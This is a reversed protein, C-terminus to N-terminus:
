LYKKKRIRPKSPLRKSINISEEFPTNMSMTLMDEKIQKIDKLYFRYHLEIKDYINQIEITNLMISTFNIHENLLGENELIIRFNELLWPIMLKINFQIQKKTNMHADVKHFECGPLEFHLNMYFSYNSYKRTHCIYHFLEKDSNNQIIGIRFTEKMFNLFDNLQENNYHNKIILIIYIICIYMLQLSLGINCANDGDYRSLIDSRNDGFIILVDWFGLYFIQSNLIIKDIATINHIWTRTIFKLVVCNLNSLKMKRLSLIYSDQLKLFDNIIENFPYFKDHKIFSDMLFSKLKFLATKFQEFGFISRESDFEHEVTTDEM